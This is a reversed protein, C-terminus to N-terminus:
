GAIIKEVQAEIGGQLEVGAMQVVMMAQEKSLPDLSQQYEWKVGKPKTNRKTYKKKGSSYRVRDDAHKEMLRKSKRVQVGLSQSKRKFGRRAATNFVEQNKHVPKEYGPPPGDVLGAAMQPPADQAAYFMEAEGSMIALGTNDGFLGGIMQLSGMDEGARKLGQQETANIRGEEVIGLNLQYKPFKDSFITLLKGSIFKLGDFVTRQTFLMTPGELGFKFIRMGSQDLILHGTETVEIRNVIVEKPQGATIQLNQPGVKTQEEGTLLGANSLQERLREVWAQVPRTWNSGSSSHNRDNRSGRNEVRGRDHRGQPSGRAPNQRERRDNRHDRRGRDRRANNNGGQNPPYPGQNELWGDIEVRVDKKHPHVKLKLWFPIEAAAKTAVLMTLFQYNGNTFYPAVRLPYGFGSVLTAMDIRNWNNLPVGYLKIRARGGLPEFALQLDPSFPHLQIETNNGIYFSAHDIAARAMNVEPFILIVDGFDDDIVFIKFESADCHFQRGMCNAVRQKFYPEAAGQGAFIFASRELFLNAPSLEDRPAIYVNLSHPREQWLAAAENMIMTQWDRPAEMQAQEGKSSRQSSPTQSTDKKAPQPHLLNASSSPFHTHSSGTALGDGKYSHKLGQTDKWSRQPMSPCDRIIHGDTNCHLCRRPNSCVAQIHGERLCKFCKGQQRLKTAHINLLSQQNRRHGARQSILKRKKRTVVTWGELDNNNDKPSELLLGKTEQSNIEKELPTQFNGRAKGMNPLSSLQVPHMTGQETEPAIRLVPYDGVWILDPSRQELDQRIELDNSLCVKGPAQEEQKSLGSAKRNVTSVKGSINWEFIDKPAEKMAEEFFDALKKDKDTKKWIRRPADESVGSNDGKSVGTRGQAAKQTTRRDGTPDGKQDGSKGQAAM